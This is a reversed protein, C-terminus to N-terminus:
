VSQMEEHDLLLVNMKSMSRSTHYASVQTMQDQSSMQKNRQHSDSAVQCKRSLDPWLIKRSIESNKKTMEWNKERLMRNRSREQHPEGM